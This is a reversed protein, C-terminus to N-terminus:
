EEWWQMVMDYQMVNLKKSERLGDVYGWYRAYSNHLKCVELYSRIAKELDKKIKVPQSSPLQTITNGQAVWQEVTLAVM